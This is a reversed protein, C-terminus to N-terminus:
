ANNHYKKYYARRDTRYLEWMASGYECEDWNLIEHDFAAGGIYSRKYRRGNYEHEEGDKLTLDNNVTYDRKM